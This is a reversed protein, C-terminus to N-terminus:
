AAGGDSITFEARANKLAAGFVRIRNFTKKIDATSDSALERVKAANEVTRARVANAEEVLKDAEGVMVDAWKNGFERVQDAFKEVQEEFSPPIKAPVQEVVDHLTRLQRATDTKDNASRM